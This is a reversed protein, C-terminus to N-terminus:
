LSRSFPLHTFTSPQPEASSARWSIRLAIVLKLCSSSSPVAQAASKVGRRPRRGAVRLAPGHGAGARTAPPTGGRPGASGGRHRAGARRGAGPKRRRDQRRGRDEGTGAGACRRGAARGLGVKPHRDGSICGSGGLTVGHLMSVNDGVVATEGIVIGTGHDVMIGKGLVAAPHIDVDFETSARNQLMYAIWSRDRRWLWHAIRHAQLAHFGKYYLFATVFSDCAPDRTRHALLDERVAATILPDDRLAEDVVDRLLMAPLMGTELRVALVCALAAELSGHNLINAHYFSALVPERSSREIAEARMEAWLTGASGSM